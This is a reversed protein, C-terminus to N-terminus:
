MDVCSVRLKELLHVGFIAGSVNGTRGYSIESRMLCRTSNNNSATSAHTLSHILKIANTIRDANINSNRGLYLLHDIIHLYNSTKGSGTEGSLIIQQVEKYHLAHQYAADAVSYVHPANESRSKFKYKEHYQLHPNFM